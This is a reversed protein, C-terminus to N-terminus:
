TSSNITITHTDSVTGGCNTAEVTIVYVGPTDWQYSVRVTGQGTLPAPSWTYIIPLTADSPTIVADFTYIDGGDASRLSLRNGGSSVAFDQVTVLGDADAIVTGSDVLGNDGVASALRNEWDYSAGPTVVFNQLRRPTVDVTQDSGDTTRLSIRWQSATDVPPGDWDDWSASWELNMNYEAGPGPPLTSSSGSANSLAPISENRVVKFNYFPGEYNVDAVNPGMGSFGIWTHDADVIEASFARQGQYFAAYVPQAQTPWEIVMDRSGHALSIYAM